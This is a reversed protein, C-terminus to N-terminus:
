PAADEVLAVVGFEDTRASTGGARVSANLITGLYEAQGPNVYTIPSGEARRVFFPHWAIISENDTVATAAGVAKPQPTGANDYITTSSRLFVNFGLLMGVAGTVLAQGSGIKDFTIFNDIALLDAYLNASVVMMRGSQPIDQSNFKKHVAVIDAYVIAKRNGTAGPAGAARASGTTRLIQTGATPAWGFLIEEALRTNLALLHDRMIDARKDYSTVLQNLDQLQIPLTAYQDIVYTKKDDTRAGVALPFSSPNKSITPVSGAQPIEVSAANPNFGADLRSQKYFENEPFLNSEILQSFLIRIVEAGLVGSPMKFPIFGILFLTMAVLLGESGGILLGIISAVVINHLLGNLIKFTKM